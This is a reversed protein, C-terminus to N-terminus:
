ALLLWKILFNWGGVEYFYYSSGLLSSTNNTTDSITNNNTNNYNYCTGNATTLTNHTTDLNTDVTSGGGSGDVGSGCETLFEVVVVTTQNHNHHNTLYLSEPDLESM